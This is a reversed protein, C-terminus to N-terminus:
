TQDLRWIVASIQGMLLLNAGANANNISPSKESPLGIKNWWVHPLREPMDTWSCTFHHMFCTLLRGDNLVVTRPSHMTPDNNRYLIYRGEWDWNRGNDDSVVAEYGRYIRGDLEGIRAAHTMVLRGDPIVTINAHVRGFRFFSFLLLM